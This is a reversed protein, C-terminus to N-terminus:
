VHKMYDVDLIKFIELFFAFLNWKLNILAVVM